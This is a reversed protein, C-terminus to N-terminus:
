VQRTGDGLMELRIAESDVVGGREQEPAVEVDALEIWSMARSSALRSSTSFGTDIGQWRGRVDRDYQERVSIIFRPMIPCLTLFYLLALILFLTSKMGYDVQVWVVSINYIMNAVFYLIGDKTFQQMYHNPQWQKTANYLVLLPRSTSIVALILLTVSLVLRLATLCWLPYSPFNSITMNCFSVDAVRIVTVSLINPNASIGQFVFSIIVQPVYIFLLFYFIRKSQNWMAYVRMIMVWEAAALFIPIAWTAVLYITTCLKVPGPVFITGGLSLLSSVNM